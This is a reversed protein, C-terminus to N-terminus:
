NFNTMLEEFLMEAEMKSGVDNFHIYDKFARPPNANVWEVMSNKGGMAEFLNWFAIDSKEALSKQAEVLKLVTPDTIFSSGKKICKDHVGILIFSAEPMAEKMEKVIKVMNKEYRSFNTKNASLINLGFELIVLKYDLEKQFKKLFETKIKKLDVGSNGRLAYNDIYIGKNSELSVGYFYASENQPFEFKISKSNEKKIELVKLNKGTSLSKSVAAKGNLSYKVVAKNKAKTYFLKAVDFKRVTKYRRNTKMEVWSGASNVFVHGNIGLPLKDKNRSFLTATTWDDSFSLDTTKRFKTDQSTIPLFGVGEGGFKKQFLERLDSTILDGELASDGYHAIRIQKSKVNKLSEFFKSLQKINGSLHEGASSPSQQLYNNSLKYIESTVFETIINVNIIAALNYRPKEKLLSTDNTGEDDFDEDDEFYEDNDEDYYEDDGSDNDYFDDSRIDCLFDVQKLEYGLIEVGEPMYSNAILLTIAIGFIILLNNINNDKM